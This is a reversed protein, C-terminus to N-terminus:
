KASSVLYKWPFNIEIKLDPSQLKYNYYKLALDEWIIQSPDKGLSRLHEQATVTVGLEASPKETPFANPMKASDM